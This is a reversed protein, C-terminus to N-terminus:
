KVVVTYGTSLLDWGGTTGNQECATRTDLWCVGLYITYTGATLINIHDSWEIVQNPGFTDPKGLSPKGQKNLAVAGLGSFPITNGTTNTVKFDFWIDDNLGVSSSRMSFFDGRLGRSMYVIPTATPPIATPPAPTFTPPVSTFTPPVLTFTPPATPPVLTLTPPVTTSPVLTLTPPVATPPVLTFTPPIATEPIATPPTTGLDVSCALTAIVIFSLAVQLHKTKM